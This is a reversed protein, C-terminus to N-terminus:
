PQSQGDRERAERKVRRVIVLPECHAFASPREVLCRGGSFGPDTSSQDEDVGVMAEIQSEIRARFICVAPDDDRAAAAVRM